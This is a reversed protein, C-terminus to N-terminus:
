AKVAFKQAKAMNGSTYSHKLAAQVMTQWTTHELDLEFFLETPYRYSATPDAAHMDIWGCRYYFKQELCVFKGKADYGFKARHHCGWVGRYNTPSHEDLIPYASATIMAFKKEFQERTFPVGTTSFVPSLQNQIQEMVEEATVLDSSVISIFEKGGSAAFFKDKDTPVGPDAPLGRGEPVRTYYACKLVKPALENLQILEVQTPAVLLQTSLGNVMAKDTYMWRGTQQFLESM